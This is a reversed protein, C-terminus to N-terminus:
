LIRRPADPDGHRALQELTDLMDNVSPWVGPRDIAPRLEAIRRAAERADDPHFDVIKDDPDLRRIMIPDAFDSVGGGDGQDFSHAHDIGWIRGDPDIIWNNGNRDGNGILLDLLGLLRGQDTAALQQQM